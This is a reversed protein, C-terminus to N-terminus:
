PKFVFFPAELREEIMPHQNRAAAVHKTRRQRLIAREEEVRGDKLMM